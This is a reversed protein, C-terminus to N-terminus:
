RTLAPAQRRRRRLVVAGVICALAAAIGGGLLPSWSSSSAALAHHATVSTDHLSKQLTRQLAGGIALTGNWTTVKDGDYTLRVSVAHSGPVVTRTWPVLYGISTHSVFTDIKFPADLKTDAVTVVGTGQTFQNGTNAIGIQLRLGDPAAVPKVGTVALSAHTKGPVVVEVAIIREGQLTVAFGAHDGQPVTTPSSALPVWLGVGALYQGPAAHPPVHVTFSVDRAEGAQLSMEPTSIVIWTGARTAVGVPTTYTAGTADSTFGDLGAVRVADAHKNQNVVHVTQTVSAGPRAVLRYYPGHPALSSGPAPYATIADTGKTAAAAPSATLGIIAAVSASAVLAVMMVIAAARNPVRGM